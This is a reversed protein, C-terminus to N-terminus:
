YKELEIELTGSQKKGPPVIQLHSEKVLGKAHLNHADTSCTQNEVCFWDANPTYVVLHTFDASGRLLLRLRIDRLDITTPKQPTMGFYVDDIVFDKLSKPQRADFPSGTLDELKGTPLQVPSEMHHTAPITLYTNERKGQYLFWPHFAFGFPVPRDGTTNDVTYTLAVKGDSVLYTMELVHKHPFLRFQETGPTFPLSCHLAVGNKLKEVRGSKWAASHVLGHLFNSGNNPKFEYRKGEFSFAADRVRNPMPYLLPNGYIFGPLDKLSKPTKLLERGEFKLSYPNAGAEPVVKLETQGSKLTWVTFGSEADTAHTVDMEAAEASMCWGSFFMAPLTLFLLSRFM